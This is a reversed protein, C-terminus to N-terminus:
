SWAVGPRDALLIFTRVLIASISVPAGLRSFKHVRSSSCHLSGTPSTGGLKCASIRTNLRSIPQFVGVGIESCGNPDGAARMWQLGKMKRKEIAVYSSFSSSRASPLSGAPGGGLARLNQRCSALCAGRVGRPLAGAAALCAGRVERSWAGAAALGLVVPWTLRRAGGLWM